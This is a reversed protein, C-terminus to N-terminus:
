LYHLALAGSGIIGYALWAPHHCGWRERCTLAAERLAEAASRGRALAHYFEAAYEGARDPAVALQSGVFVSTGVELFRPGLSALSLYSNSFILPPAAHERALDEPRVPGDELEWAPAPAVKLNLAGDSWPALRGADAKENIRDLLSTVPDVGVIELDEEDVITEAAPPAAWARDADPARPPVATAGSFHVAKYDRSARALRSPTLAPPPTELRALRRGDSLTELAGDIMDRELRSQGGGANAAQGDLFLIAPEACDGPRFRDVLDGVTAPGFAAETLADDAWRRMWSREPDTPEAGRTSACIPAREILFHLGNHLATWPLGLHSPDVRLHYGHGPTDAVTAASPARVVGDERDPAFATADAAHAARFLLQGIEELGSLVQPSDLGCDRQLAALDDRRAEARELFDSVASGDRVETLDIDLWRM